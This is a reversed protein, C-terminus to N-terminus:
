IELRREVVQYKDAEYVSDDDFCENMAHACAEDAGEQTSHYSVGNIYFGDNTQVIFISNM